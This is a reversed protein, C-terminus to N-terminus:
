NLSIDSIVARHDSFEKDVTEYNVVKFAPNVLIYDIQLKPFKGYRTIGLGSGKEVFANKLGKGLINVSYSNPTDNFDGVVIYPHPCSDLSNKIYDVQHSRMVFAASLSREIAATKDLPIDDNLYDSKNKIDVAALHVSYIRFIQNKYKVDIFIARTQLAEPAAVYNTDVIPLKSFIAQGYSYNKNSGYPKFYFYDTQLIKKISDAIQVDGKNSVYEEIAVIDPQKNKILKFIQNQTPERDYAGIGTFGNVNYEMIRINGPNKRDNVPFASRFGFNAVLFNFGALICVASVLVYIKLRVLWFLIFVINVLLLVQYSFGLIAILSFEGPNTSAAMYSVVLCTACLINLILVIRELLNLRTRFKM